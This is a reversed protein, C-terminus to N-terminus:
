LPSFYILCTLINKETKIKGAMLIHQLPLNYLQRASRWGYQSFDELVCVANLEKRESYYFRAFLIRFMPLVLLLCSM